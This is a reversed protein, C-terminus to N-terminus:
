GTQPNRPPTSTLVDDFSFDISMDVDEDFEEDFGYISKPPTQLEEYAPATASPSAFQSPAHTPHHADQPSFLNRWLPPTDSSVHTQNHELSRRRSQNARARMSPSPTAVDDAVGAAIFRRKNGGSSSVVPIAKITQRRLFRDILRAPLACLNTISTTVAWKGITIFISSSRAPAVKEEEHDEDDSFSLEEPWAGPVRTRSISPPAQQHAQQQQQSITTDIDLGTHELSTVQLQSAGFGHTSTLMDAPHTCLYASYARKNSM